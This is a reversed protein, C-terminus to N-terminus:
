KHRWIVSKRKLKVKTSLFNLAVVRVCQKEIEVLITWVALLRFAFKLENKKRKLDFNPKLVSSCLQFSSHIVVSFFYFRFVGWRVRSMRAVVCWAEIEIIHRWLFTGDWGSTIVDNVTIEFPVICTNKLWVDIYNSHSTIIDPIFNESGSAIM